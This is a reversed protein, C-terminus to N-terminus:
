CQFATIENILYLSCVFTIM